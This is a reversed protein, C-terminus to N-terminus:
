GYSIASHRRHHGRCLLEHGASRWGARDRKLAVAPPTHAPDYSGVHELFLGDRRAYDNAAVIRYFPHKKSGHRALRLKVAM